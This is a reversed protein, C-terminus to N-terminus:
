EVYKDLNLVRYNMKLTQSALDLEDVNVVPPPIYNRLKKLGFYNHAWYWLLGAGAVASVAVAAIAAKKAKQLANKESLSALM